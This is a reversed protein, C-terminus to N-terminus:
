LGRLFFELCFQGLTPLHWGVEAPGKVKNKPQQQLGKMVTERGEGGGM